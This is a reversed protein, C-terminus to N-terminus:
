ADKACLKRISQERGGLHLAGGQGGREGEQANNAFVRSRGGLHFACQVARQRADERRRARRVHQGLNAKKKTKEEEKEKRKGRKKM